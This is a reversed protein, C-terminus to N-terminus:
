VFGFHSTNEWFNNLIDYRLRKLYYWSCFEKVLAFINQGGVEGGGTKTLKQTSGTEWGLPFFVSSIEVVLVQPTNKETAHHWPESCPLHLEKPFNQAWFPAVKGKPLYMAWYSRSSVWRTNISLNRTSHFMRGLRILYSHLKGGQLPTEWM